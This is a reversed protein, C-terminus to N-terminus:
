IIKMINAAPRKNMLEQAMFKMHPEIHSFFKKYGACLYNLGEEGDPTKIFRHKPCEGNCAYRVECNLCYGPLGAKKDEGFDIQQQSYVLSELPNDLINGLKNGPYVYHDCSYVDGNHEIALAKGCTEKFVCLSQEMGIQSELAVDFIQIFYRGVDEKVWEDFIECLFNGYQVPEVSWETVQANGEYGPSVLQLEESPAIREVVPIFQMYGSGTEKLFNYVELSHYSNHKNVVTLTNFEVHHKKLFEIGRMVKNFSPQGGKLIRYKDHLHAPGDISIGILINNEAFFSCWEDNLLIGNTQFGNEIKKGNAYKRQLEVVKKFYDVGLLTPEGGQWVFSVTDIDQGEIKQKIFQELIEDTMSFDKSGPYLKEKELYFCYSCDLNCIPGIPKAMM